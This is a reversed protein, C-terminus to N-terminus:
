FHVDLRVFWRRGIVDYTSPDTGSQVNPSYQPPQKDFVNNVGVRLASNEMFRWSAALDWYTVSGVGDFTEGPFQVSARNKMSHIYRGRLYLSYNELFTWDTTLTAKWEPLTQGLSIGGGFYNVTGAYDIAPQGPTDRLKYEFLHSLILNNRISGLSGPAGLAALDFSWDVQFDIGSTKIEGENLAIFTESSDQTNIIGQITGARLLGQCYPNNPDYNPNTGLYNYCAAIGVNVDPALIADSVKISYYDISARFRELLPSRFAPTFVLGLTYSDGQEPKLATNGSTDIFAQSGPTQVFTDVAAVDLGTDICLQRMAAADPGNRKATHVSCPDFIQPFSGGAQFLEAFNPARVARQYSARVRMADIPQWSLEVKYSNSDEEDSALGQILDEFQSRSYRYGLALDLSQAWRADRVLPVFAELFIDKFENKGREPDATNFGSIPGAGAGPNFDYNFKRIEGGFALSVDGAPMQFASGTVYAQYIQQEMTLSTQTEVLFLDLCEQSLPHSGFPNFACGNLTGDPANLVDTVAQTDINGQQLNDIETRGHSAYVEWRWDSKGIPGRFGAMYDVVTNEYNEQRLGASVPRFGILFPEDAGSGVLAPDDGTRANLLARLDDPIFPNTVPVPVGTSFRHGPNILPSAVETPGNEGPATFFVGPVPSPALATAANYEAWNARAFVEVGGGIEYDFKLMFSDRDLPLTLINVADFNYSYFDPYFLSNVGADIPDRFNQADFPSNFLGAYFLTGDRNFGLLGSQATTSGAPVGYSEFLADVASQPIPNGTRWRLVGQPPTGTTASALVSFPRQSKILPERYTHDFAIVANGRDDAFNGGLVGSITYERADSYETSDQYSASINLGQFNDKLKINVVGAIADAGYVAGAGGTIVEISEILAAPITNLDVTLDNASVMPRRGDILVLNRNPGLGRLDINAQGNNSPNNSTTTAGPVVQPLTNLFTEITIDANGVVDEQTVTAIPSNAVFDQRIIRSGTVTITSIESGGAQDQDQAHAPLSGVSAAVMASMVLARRVARGIEDNHTM